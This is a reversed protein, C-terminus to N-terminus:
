ETVTRICSVLLRNAEAYYFLAFPIDSDKLTEAEGLRLICGYTNDDTLMWPKHFSIDSYSDVVKKVSMRVLDFDYYEPLSIVYIIYEEHKLDEDAKFIYGDSQEVIDYALIKTYTERQTQGYLSSLSFLLLGIILKKM